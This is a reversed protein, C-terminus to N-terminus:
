DKENVQLVNVLLRNNFFMGIVGFVVVVSVIIGTGIIPNMQNTYPFLGMLVEWLVGFLIFFLGFTLGLTIHSYDDDVQKQKQQLLLITYYVVLFVGCLVLVILELHPHNFLPMMVDPLLNLFAMGFLMTYFGFLMFVWEYMNTDDGSYLSYLSTTSKIFGYLLYIIGLIPHDTVQFHHM